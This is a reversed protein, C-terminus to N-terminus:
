LKFWLVYVASFEELTIRALPLASSSNGMVMIYLKFLIEIVINM